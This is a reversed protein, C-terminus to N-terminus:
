HSVSFYSQDSDDGLGSQCDVAGGLSPGALARGAMGDVADEAGLTARRNGVVGISSGLDDGQLSTGQVGLDLLIQLRYTM